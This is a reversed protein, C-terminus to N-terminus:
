SPARRLTSRIPSPRPDRTTTLAVINPIRRGNNSEVESEVVAAAAEMETTHEAKKV